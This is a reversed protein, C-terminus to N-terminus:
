PKSFYKSLREIISINKNVELGKNYMEEENVIKRSYKSLIKIIWILFIFLIITLSTTLIPWNKFFTIKSLIIIYYDIILKLGGTVSGIITVIVAITFNILKGGPTDTLRVINYLFIIILLFFCCYIIFNSLYVPENIKFLLKALPTIKESLLIDNELNEKLNNINEIKENVKNDEQASILSLSTLIILILFTILLRKM